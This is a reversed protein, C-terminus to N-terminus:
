VGAAFIEISGTAGGNVATVQVYASRYGVGNVMIETLPALSAATGVVVWDGLDTQAWVTLNISTHTATGLKWYLAVASAFVFPLVATTSASPAGPLAGTNAIAIPFEATPPVVDEKAYRPRGHTSVRVVLEGAPHDTVARVNEVTPRVAFARARRSPPTAM